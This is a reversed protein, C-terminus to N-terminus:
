NVAAVGAALVEALKAFSEVVGEVRERTGADLPVGDPGFGNSGYGISIWEPGNVGHLNRVIAQLHTLSSIGLPGGAASVSLVPKGGVQEASMYDLANKLAGSVSGHYEPTALILGDAEAVQSIMQRVNPHFDWDDPTFFPLPQEYLDTFSVDIRRAKLLSAIYRLLITSSANTRNSGAILALKM